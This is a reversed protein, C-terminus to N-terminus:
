LEIRGLDAAARDMRARVDPPLRWDPTTEFFALERINEALLERARAISDRHISCARRYSDESQVLVTVLLASAQGLIDVEDASGRRDRACELLFTLYAEVPNRLAGPVVIEASLYGSTLHRTALVADAIGGSEIMRQISAATPTDV